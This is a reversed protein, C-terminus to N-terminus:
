YPQVAAEARAPDYQCSDAVRVAAGDGDGPQDTPSPETPSPSTPDTPAPPPETPAPRDAKALAKRVKDRMWDFDPDGSFFEKSSIFAVSRVDAGKARLALEVFGPLLRAPIDTQVIEKGARALAQYRRLLTVPDAEDILDGILCRQRLMRSYDSSGYRGRAFWLAHYGDLHQHPGPHLWEEPPIGASQNGQVAVYENIDVTVGGMAEVLQRFGGLNVLAYYDVPIGLSGEVAQKIADAGENASSGLVGPHLLPVQGYIANLMWNGQDGEGRFGDPYLDHLPSDEPFQANMLNRPLSFMTVNGTPIDARVLVATDTRVGTRGPGYDGGLLLVSVTNLGGWPDTRTIEHPLETTTAAKNGEFLSHVLDAQVTAYRIALAPPGTLAIVLVFAVLAGFFARVRTRPHPRVALYTLLLSVAWVLTVGAGVLAVTTLTGPDFAVDLMPRLGVQVYGYVALGIAALTPVLLLLGSWRRAWLLGAGPVVAGLLVPGLSRPLSRARKKRHDSPPAVPIPTRGDEPQTPRAQTTTM